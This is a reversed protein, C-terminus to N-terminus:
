VAFGALVAFVSFEVYRVYCARSAALGLNYRYHLNDDMYNSSRRFYVPHRVLEIPGQLQREEHRQPARAHLLSRRVRMWGVALEDM